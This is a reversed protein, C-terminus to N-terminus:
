GNVLRPLTQFRDMVTSLSASSALTRPGCFLVFVPDPQGPRQTKVFAYVPRERSSRFISFSATHGNRDIAYDRWDGKIVGTSYASLIQGLERRSFFVDPKAGRGRNLRILNAMPYAIPGFTALIHGSTNRFFVSRYLGANWCIWIPGGTVAHGIGRPPWSQCVRSPRSQVLRDPPM